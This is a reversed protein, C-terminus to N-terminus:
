SHIMTAESVHIAYSKFWWVYVLGAALAFVLVAVLVKRLILMSHTFNQRRVRDEQPISELLVEAMQAPTGFAQELQAPVPDPCEELMANLMADFRSLLATRAPRSCLDPSLRKKLASKYQKAATNTM